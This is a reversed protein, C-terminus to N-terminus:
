SPAAPGGTHLRLPDHTVGPLVLDWIAALRHPLGPCDGGDRATMEIGSVLYRVLLGVSEPEASPLLLDQRGAQRILQRVLPMWSDTWSAKLQDVEQSLRGAALVTPDDMLLRGLAHTVDIVSQLPIQDWEGVRVMADRTAATGSAYVAKALDIKARFHFALGGMTVGARKSIGLLSTAAYGQRAFEAAAALM